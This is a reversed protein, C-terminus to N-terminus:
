MEDEAVVAERFLASVVVGVAVAEGVVSSGDVVVVALVRVIEEVVGVVPEM